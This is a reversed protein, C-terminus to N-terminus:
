PAVFRLVSVPRQNTLFIAFGDGLRAIALTPDELRAIAGECGGYGPVFHYVSGVDRGSIEYGSVYTIGRPTQIMVETNGQETTSELDEREWREVDIRAIRGHLTGTALLGVLLDREGNAFLAVPTQDLTMRRVLQDNELEFVNESAAIFTRGEGNQAAYFRFAGAVAGLPTLTTGRMVFVEQDFTVLVVEDEFAIAKSFRAGATSTVIPTIDVAPATGFSVADLEGDFGAVLLAGDLGAGIVTRYPSRPLEYTASTGDPEFVVIDSFSSSLAIRGDSLTDARRLSATTAIRVEPLTEWACQTALGSRPPLRFASFALGEADEDWTGITGDVVAAQWRGLADPLPRAFQDTSPTVRGESLGLADLSEDYAAIAITTSEDTPLQFDVHGDTTAAHFEFQGRREVAVLLSEGDTSPLAM